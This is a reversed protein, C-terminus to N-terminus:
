AATSTSLVLDGTGQLRTLQLFDPHAFPGTPGAVNGWNRVFVEDDIVTGIANHMAADATGWMSEATAPDVAFLQILIRTSTTVVNPRSGGSLEVLVFREPLRNKPLAAAVSATGDFADVLISLATRLAPKVTPYVFM